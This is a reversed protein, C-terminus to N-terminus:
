HPQRGRSRPTSYLSQRRQQHEEVSSTDDSDHGGELGEVYRSAPRPSSETESHHQHDDVDFEDVEEEEEDLDSEDTNEGNHASQHLAQAAIRQSAQRAAARM